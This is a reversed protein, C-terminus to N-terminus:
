KTYRGIGELCGDTFLRCKIGEANYFYWTGGEEFTYSAGHFQKALILRGTEQMEAPYEVVDRLTYVMGPEPQGSLPVPFLLLAIILLTKM